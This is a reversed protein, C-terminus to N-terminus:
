DYDHCNFSDVEDVTQRNLTMSTAAQQTRSNEIVKTKEMSEKM